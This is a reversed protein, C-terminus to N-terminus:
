SNIGVCEIPHSAAEGMHTHLHVQIFGQNSLNIDALYLLAHLVLTDISETERTSPNSM